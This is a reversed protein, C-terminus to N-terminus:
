VQLRTPESIHILSLNYDSINWHTGTPQTIDLHTWGNWDPNGFQDEFDGDYAPEGPGNTPDYSAAMLNITDGGAKQFGVPGGHFVKDGLSYRPMEGAIAPITSLFFFVCAYSISRTWKM